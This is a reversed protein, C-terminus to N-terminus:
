RPGGRPTAFGEEPRVSRLPVVGGTPAPGPAPLEEQETARELIRCILSVDAAELELAKSCAAEVRDAGYRRVLGLLRYVRRMRTWPLPGELVAAAVAGVAEGHSAAQRRLRELDRMAYAAKEPPLDAPDTSRGGVAQRPHTKVLVGHHSIRVLHRDARVRVEQGLYPAPVSYLARGVEIHRDRHVKAKAYLPLEYPSTPAPLLAPAEESAFVELPRRHTTGHIRLGADHLCWSEVRRQAEPLSRFEEGAFFSRRVYGVAREVRAKDRPHRARAADILFGRAQAYEVFAENLRPDLSDAEQVIAKCDDPVVVKFVGGFFAWAAEFGEIVAPLAQSFTLWVFMHRSFAATFVLAHCVRRRGAEPDPLLGMRGFDVQLESGPSPDAVRVTATDRRHGLEETCFRYLTRLPVEVGAQGRLDRQIRVVTLGRELRGQIFTEHALLVQWSRGRGGAPRGAPIAAVVQALLEETLQEQGGARDLGAAAAAQVYRRASKRDVMALRAISRYGHGALWLRLIERVVVVSVERFAM